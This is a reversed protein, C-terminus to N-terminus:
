RTHMAGLMCRTRFGYVFFFLFMKERDIVFGDNRLVEETWEPLVVDIRRRDSAVVKDLRVTVIEGDGDGYQRPYYPLQGGVVIFVDRFLKM